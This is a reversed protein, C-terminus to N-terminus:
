WLNFILQLSHHFIEGEAKLYGDAMEVYQRQPRFDRYFRCEVPTQSDCKSLQLDKIMLIMLILM